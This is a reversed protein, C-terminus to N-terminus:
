CAMHLGLTMCHVSLLGCVNVTNDVLRHVEMLGSASLWAGGGGWVGKFGEPLKASQYDQGKWILLVLCVGTHTGLGDVSVYTGMEGSRTEVAARKCTKAGPWSVIRSNLTM